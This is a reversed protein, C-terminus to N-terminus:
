RTTILVNTQNRSCKAKPKIGIMKPLFNLLYLNNIFSPHFRCTKNNPPTKYNGTIQYHATSAARHVQHIKYVALVAAHVAEYFISPRSKLADPNPPYYPVWFHNRDTIVRLPGAGLCVHSGTVFCLDTQWM